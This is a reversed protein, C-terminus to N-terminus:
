AGVRAIFLTRGLAAERVRDSSAILVRDEAAPGYGSLCVECVRPEDMIDRM